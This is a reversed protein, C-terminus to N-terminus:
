VICAQAITEILNSHMAFHMTRQWHLMYGFTQQIEEEAGGCIFINLGKAGYRWACNFLAVSPHPDL